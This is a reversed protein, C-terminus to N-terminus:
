FVGAVRQVVVDVSEAQLVGGSPVTQDHSCFVDLWDPEPLTVMGTVVMTRHWGGAGGWDQLQGGVFILKGRSQVFCRFSTPPELSNAILVAATVVWSGAPLQATPQRTIVQPVGGSRVLPVVTGSVWRSASITTANWAVQTEGTACTKGQQADVVRLAGTSTYCGTIVGTSSHPITALAQSASSVLVAAALIALMAVVRRRWAKLNRM